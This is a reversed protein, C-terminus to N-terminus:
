AGTAWRAFTMWASSGALLLSGAQSLLIALGGCVTAAHVRGRSIFDYVVLAIIFLDTVGFFVPPTVAPDVIWMMLRHIAATAMVTTGLMILRKHAGANKRLVIAAGILVPFMLLTVLALALFGLIMEQPIGPTETTGRGYILLAGTVVMPVLLVAGGIGLQRHLRVKAASILSTQVVLLVLWLTFLAGHVHILPKLTSTGFHAKLYYSPAFGAFCAVALAIAMGTFFRRERRPDVTAPRTKTSPTAPNQPVAVSISSM